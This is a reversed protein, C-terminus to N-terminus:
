EKKQIRHSFFRMSIMMWVSEKVRSMMAASRRGRHTSLLPRKRKNNCLLFSFSLFSDEREEAFPFSSLTTIKTSFLFFFFFPSGEESFSLFFAISIKSVRNKLSERERQYIISNLFLVFLLLYFFFLYCCLFLWFLLFFCRRFINHNFSRREVRPERLLILRLMAVRSVVLIVLARSFLSFFLASRHRSQVSRNTRSFPHLFPVFFAVISRPRSAILFM